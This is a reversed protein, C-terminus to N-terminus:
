IKYFPLIRYMGHKKITKVMEEAEVETDFHQALYPSGCFTGNKTYYFTYDPASEMPKHLCGAILFIKKM